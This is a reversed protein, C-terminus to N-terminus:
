PTLSHVTIYNPTKISNFTLAVAVDPGMKMATAITNVGPDAKVASKKLPMPACASPSDPKLYFSVPM